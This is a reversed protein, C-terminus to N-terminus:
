IQALAQELDDMLDATDEIGVSVRILSPTISRESREAETLSAHSMAPPWGILSEVGGLSEALQFLKTSAAAKKAVDPGAAVEFSMMGGFGRMQRKALEHQPHTPLGPYHVASVKPHKALFEAIAQASRSHQEMRLALTKVGRLTLWSDFPSPTNGAAKAYHKLPETLDERSWMLAGGVVDSHGNIYKTTSHMVIDCGFDIPNQLYPSAFTNDLASVAGEGRAIECCAAIDCLKLTPNTPTELWVLKAGAAIPKLASSDTTEFYQIDIGAPRLITEFYRHTGGYIDLQSAIKDGPRLLSCATAVAAMGTALSSAFKANEIEALLQELAFRTPNGARTYDFQPPEDLSQWAFTVSQHLPPMVSHYPGVPAQGVHITKTSFKV